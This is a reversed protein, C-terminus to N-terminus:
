IVAGRDSRGYHTRMDRNWDNDSWDFDEDDSYEPATRLQDESVDLEYADLDENYRLVNWPIPRRSEGMGLFGGFSMVVYEVHGSRKDIMLRYISGIKDGDSRRVDTGEVKDSAILRHTEDRNVDQMAPSSTAGADGTMGSRSTSM